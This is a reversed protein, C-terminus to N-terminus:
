GSAGKGAKLVDEDEDAMDGKEGGKRPAAVATGLAALERPLAAPEVSGSRDMDTADSQDGGLEVGMKSSKNSSDHMRTHEKGELEKLREEYVELQAAQSKLQDQLARIYEDQQKLAIATKHVLKEPSVAAKDEGPAAAAAAPGAAAARGSDLQLATAYAINSALEAQLQAIKVHPDAEERAAAGGSSPM